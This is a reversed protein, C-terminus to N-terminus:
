VSIRLPRSSPRWWRQLRAGLVSGPVALNEPMHTFPVSLVKREAVVVRQPWRESVYDWCVLSSNKSKARHFRNRGDWPPVDLDESEQRLRCEGKRIKCIHAREQQAQRVGSETGPACILM